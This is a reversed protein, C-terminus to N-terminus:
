GFICPADRRLQAVKASECSEVDPAVLQGALIPVIKEANMMCAIHNRIFAALVGIVGVSVFGEHWSLHHIRSTKACRLAVCGYKTSIRSCPAKREKKAM